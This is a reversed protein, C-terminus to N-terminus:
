KLLHDPIFPIIGAKEFGSCINTPLCVRELGLRFFFHLSTLNLSQKVLHDISSITVCM